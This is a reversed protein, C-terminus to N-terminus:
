NKRRDMWVAFAFGALLLLGEPSWLLKAVAALVLQHNSM